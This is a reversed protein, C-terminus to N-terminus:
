KFQRKIRDKEFVEYVGTKILSEALKDQFAQSLEESISNDVTMDWIGISERLSGSEVDKVSHDQSIVFISAFYWILLATIAIILSLFIVKNIKLKELYSEEKVNNTKSKGQKSINRLEVILQDLSEYRDEPLKNLCKFVIAALEGPSLTDGPAAQPITANSASDPLSTQRLLLIM